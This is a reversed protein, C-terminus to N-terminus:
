ATFPNEVTVGGYDQGHSLDESLVRTCGAARATEVILADWYSISWAQSAAIARLVLSGDLPVVRLDSLRRVVETATKVSLPRRLRRTVATYFESLVQVSLTLDGEAAHDAVLRAAVARKAPEDHDHLYVLVNTDFFTEGPM